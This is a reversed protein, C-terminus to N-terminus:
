ITQRRILTYKDTIMNIKYYYYKSEIFLNDGKISFKIILSDTHAGLLINNNTTKNIYLLLDCGSNVSYKYVNMFLQSLHSEDIYLYLNDRGHSNFERFNYKKSTVLNTIKKNNFISQIYSLNDMTIYFEDENLLNLDINYFYEHILDVHLLKIDVFKLYYSSKLLLKNFNKTNKYKSNFLKQYIKSINDNNINFDIRKYNDYGYFDGIILKITLKIIKDYNERTNMQYCYIFNLLGFLDIENPYYNKYIVKLLNYCKFGNIKIEQNTFYDLEHIFNDLQNKIEPDNLKSKEYNKNINFNTLKSMKTM